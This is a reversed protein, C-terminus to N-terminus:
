DCDSSHTHSDSDARDSIQILRMVKTATQIIVVVVTHTVTLIQQGTTQILRVKMATQAILQTHSDSESSPTWQSTDSIFTLDSESSDEESAGNESDNSECAAGAGIEGSFDSCSIWSMLGCESGTIALVIDTM